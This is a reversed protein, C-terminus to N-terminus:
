KGSLLTDLQKSIETLRSEMNKKMELQERQMKSLNAKLIGQNLLVMFQHQTPNSLLMRGVGTVFEEYTLHQDENIDLSDYLEEFTTNAPFHRHSVAQALDEKIMKNLVEKLALKRQKRAEKLEEGQLHKLDEESLHHDGVEADWKIAMAEAHQFRQLWGLREKVGATSDCIVGVIVNLLGFTVTIIYLMFPVLLWAQFRSFPHTVESWLAGMMIDVLTLCATPLNCFYMDQQCKTKQHIQHLLQEDQEIIANNYDPDMIAHDVTSVLLVAFVYVVSSILLMIWGLSMFSEFLGEVATTLEDISRFIRTIRIFRAVRLIKWAKLHDTSGPAVVQGVEDAASLVTLSFDMINWMSMKKLEGYLSLGSTTSGAERFYGLFGTKSMKWIIEAVFASLFFWNALDCTLKLMPYDLWDEAEFDCELGMVMFNMVVVVSM